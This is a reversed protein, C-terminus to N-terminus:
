KWFAWHGIALSWNLGWEARALLIALYARYLVDSIAPRYALKQIM